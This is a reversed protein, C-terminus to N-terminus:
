VTCIYFIFNVYVIWPSPFGPDGRCTMSRRIQQFKTRLLAGFNTKQVPPELLAFSTEFCATVGFMPSSAVM